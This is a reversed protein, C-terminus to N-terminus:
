FVYIGQLQLTLLHLISVRNNSSFSTHVQMDNGATAATSVDASIMAGVIPDNQSDDRFTALPKIGMSAHIQDPALEPAGDRPPQYLRALGDFSGAMVYDNVCDVMSGSGENDQLDYLKVYSLNFGGQEHLPSDAPGDMDMANGDNSITGAHPQGPRLELVASKGSAPNVVIQPLGPRQTICFVMGSIGTANPDPNTNGHEKVDCGIRHLDAESTLHWAVVQGSTDGVDESVDVSGGGLVIGNPFPDRLATVAVNHQM